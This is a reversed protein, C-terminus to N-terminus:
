YLVSAAGGLASEEGPMLVRLGVAVFEVGLQSASSYM